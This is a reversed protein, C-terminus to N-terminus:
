ELQTRGPDPCQGDRAGGPGCNRDRHERHERHRRPWLTAPWEPFDRAPVHRNCPFAGPSRRGDAVTPHRKKSAGSPKWGHGACGHADCGALAAALSPFLAAGPGPGRSPAGEGTAQAAGTDEGTSETSSGSSGSSAGSSASSTDGTNSANTHGSSVAGPDGTAGSRLRGERAFSDQVAIGQQLAERPRGAGAQRRAPLGCSAGPHM